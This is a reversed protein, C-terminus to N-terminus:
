DSSVFTSKIRYVVFREELFDTDIKLESPFPPLDSLLYGLFACPVITIRGGMVM